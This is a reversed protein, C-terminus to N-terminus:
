VSGFLSFYSPIGAKLGEKVINVYELIQEFLDFRGSTLCFFFFYIQFSGILDVHGFSKLAVSFIHKGLPNLVSLSAAQGGHPAPPAFDGGGRQKIRGCHRILQCTGLGPCSTWVIIM